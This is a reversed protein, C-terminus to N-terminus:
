SPGQRPSGERGPPRASPERTFSRYVQRDPRRRRPPYRRLQRRRLPRRSRARAGRWRPLVPQPLHGGLPCPSARAPQCYGPSPPMSPRLSGYTTASRSRWRYPWTPCRFPKNAPLWSAADADGKQENAPGSVALLELPDNAMNTRVPLSLQQAGTQWADGLAVVHDIQVAASTNEGRTFAIVANTYPDHLVGSVVTCGHTGPKIVVSTLDRRLIDNRTDCGNHGGAVSVDDTWAPGFQARSYGTLPARGKVPLTALGALATSSAPSAPPTTAPPLASTVPPRTAPTTAPGPQVRTSPPSASANTPPTTTPAVSASNTSTTGCAAGAAIIILLLVLGVTRDILWRLSSRKRTPSSSPVSRGLRDPTTPPPPPREWTVAPVTKINSNGTGQSETTNNQWLCARIRGETSIDHDDDTELEAGRQGGQPTACADSM